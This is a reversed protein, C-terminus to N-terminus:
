HQLATSVVLCFVHRFATLRHILSKKAAASFEHAVENYAATPLFDALVCDGNALAEVLLRLPPEETAGSIGKWTIDLFRRSQCHQAGLNWPQAGDFLRLCRQAVHQVVADDPFSM